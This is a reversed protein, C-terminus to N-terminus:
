SERLYNHINTFIKQNFIINTKDLFPCTNINSAEPHPMLGLILGSEDTVGAIQSFSGNVDETYSLAIQKKSKLIEFCEDEAGEHFTVAGEGHRISVPFMGDLHSLWPSSTDEVKCHVWRNIFQHNKNRGLSLINQNNYHGFVGLKALVQFGNCVGIIPKKESCWQSFADKLQTKFKLALIQGSGLEDGFSFGGPLFMGEYNKFLNPNEIAENIHVIDSDMGALQIAKSSELQSNIGDGSIVIFRPKM